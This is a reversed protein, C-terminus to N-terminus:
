AKMVARGEGLVGLMISQIQEVWQPSHVQGMQGALYKTQIQGVIALAEEQRVNKDLQPEGDIVVNYWGGQGGTVEVKPLNPAMAAAIEKAQIMHDVSAVAVRGNREVIIADQDPDYRVGEPLKNKKGLEAQRRFEEASEQAELSNQKFRFVVDVLDENATDIGLEKQLAAIQAISAKSAAREAAVEQALLLLDNHKEPDASLLKLVEKEVNNVAVLTRKEKDLATQIKTGRAILREILERPASTKEWEGTDPNKFEVVEANRLVRGLLVFIATGALAGAGVMAFRYTRDSLGRLPALVYFEALFAGLIPLGILSGFRVAQIGAVSFPHMASGHGFDDTTIEKATDKVAEVAQHATEKKRGTFWTMPNLSSLNM